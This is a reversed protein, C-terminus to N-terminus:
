HSQGSGFRNGRLRAGGGAPPDQDEARRPAIEVVEIDDIAAIGARLHHREGGGLDRADDAAAIRRREGSREIGVANRDEVLGPELREAAVPPDVLDDEGIAVERMLLHHM